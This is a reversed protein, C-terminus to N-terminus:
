YTSHCKASTQHGMNLIGNRGGCRFSKMINLTKQRRGMFSKVKRGGIPFALTLHVDMPIVKIKKESTIYPTMSYADFNEM